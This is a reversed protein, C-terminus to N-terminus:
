LFLYNILFQVLPITGLCAVTSVFVTEAAVQEDGGYTRAMMTQAVMPPLSMITAILMSTVYDFFMSAVFYGALPIITMKVVILCYVYPKLLMQMLPMTALLAGLYLLALYRSSDGLGKIATLVPAPLQINFYLLCLAITIGVLMPNILKKLAGIGGRKKSHRTCIFLGVSWLLFQDIVFYILLCVAVQSSAPFMAEILPVGMFGINCFMTAVTFMDQGSRRLGAAGALAYGLLCLTGYMLLIGLAYTRNDLIQQVTIGNGVIIYFILCPLLLNVILKALGNLLDTTMVKAKAMIFGILMLIAFVMVQNVVIYFHQSM